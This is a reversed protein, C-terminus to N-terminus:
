DAPPVLIVLADTDDTGHTAIATPGVLVEGSLDGVFAFEGNPGVATDRLGTGRYTALLRKGIDVTAMAGTSSVATLELHGDVTDPHDSNYPSDIWEPSVIAGDPRVALGGPSAASNQAYSSQQAGDPGFTTLERHGMGDGTSQTTELVIQDSRDVTVTGASSAGIAEAWLYSGDAHYRALFGWPGAATQIVQGGLSISAAAYGDFIVDGTASTAISNIYSQTSPDFAVIWRPDGASTLSFVFGLNSDGSTYTKGLFSFTGLRSGGAVYANSNSDLAIGYGYADSNSGLGRAWMLAGDRTYRAVFLDGNVHYPTVLTVGGFNVTGMYEGTVYITDDAAVAIDTIQAQADPEIGTIAAEWIPGGDTGARRVVFAWTGLTGITGHGFDITGLHGLGGVIVDGASDFAVADGEEYGRGGLALSWEAHGAVISNGLNSEASCATAALSLALLLKM